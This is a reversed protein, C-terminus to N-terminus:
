LLVWGRKVLEAIWEQMKEFAAAANPLTRDTHGVLEGFERKYVFFQSYGVKWVFTLIEGQDNCLSRRTSKADQDCFKELESMVETMNSAPPFLGATAKWLTDVAVNVQDGSMFGAQQRGVIWKITEIVKRELEESTSPPTSM